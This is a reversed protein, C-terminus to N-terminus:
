VPITQVPLLDRRRLDGLPHGGLHGRAGDDQEVVGREVCRLGQGGNQFGQQLLAIGEHGDRLEDQRLGIGDVVGPPLKGGRGSRLGRGSCGPECRRPPM